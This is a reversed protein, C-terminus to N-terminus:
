QGQMDFETWKKNRHEVFDISMRLRDIKFMMILANGIILM